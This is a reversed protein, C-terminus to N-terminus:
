PGEVRAREGAAEGRARKESIMRSIEVFLYPQLKSIREAFEM